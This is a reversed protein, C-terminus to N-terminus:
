RRAMPARADQEVGQKRMSPAAACWEATEEPDIDPGSNQLIAGIHRALSLDTM